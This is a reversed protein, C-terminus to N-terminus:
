QPPQSPQLSWREGKQHQPTGQTEGTTEEAVAVDGGLGLHRKTKKWPRDAEGPETRAPYDRPMGLM